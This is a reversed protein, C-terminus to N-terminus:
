PNTYATNNKLVNTAVNITGAAGFGGTPNAVAVGGAGSLQVALTNPLNGISQLLNPNAAAGWAATANGTMDAFGISANAGDAAYVGYQQSTGGSESGYRGGSVVVKTTGTTLIGNRRAAGLATGNNIARSNGLAHTGGALFYGDQSNGQAHCGTFQASTNNATLEFGSGVNSAPTALAPGTPLTGTLETFVGTFTHQSGYTDLYIASYGDSGYFGGDVRVGQIPVGALGGFALGSASNGFSACNKITGCTMQSPGAVSQILFGQSGNKQSLVTDLSWQVTGDAATNVLVVGAVINKQSICHSLDSWDTPGLSIGNYQKEVLVNRIQSQGITVGSSQIGNGGAIATVARTFTFGEVVVGNLSSSYLIGPLNNTQAEMVCAGFCDGWLRQGQQTINITGAFRWRDAFAADKCPPIYVSRHALLAANLAGTADATRTDDGSYFDLLSVSDRLKALYPRAVAGTGAQTFTDSPIDAEAATLRDEVDTGWERIQAKIPKHPVGLSLEDRWITSATEVM